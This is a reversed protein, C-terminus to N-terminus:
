LCQMPHVWIFFDERILLLQCLDLVISPATHLHEIVEAMIVLDHKDSSIWKEKHQCCNLDFNFHTHIMESPVIKKDIPWGLTNIEVKEGYFRKLIGTLYHPGIDLINVKNKTEIIKKILPDITQIIHSYRIAHSELYGKEIPTLEIDAFFSIIKEASLKIEIM